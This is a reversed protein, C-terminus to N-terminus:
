WKCIREFDEKGTEGDWVMDESCDSKAKPHEGLAIRRKWRRRGDISAGM